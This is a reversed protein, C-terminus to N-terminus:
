ELFSKRFGGVYTTTLFLKVIALKSVRGLISRKKNKGHSKKGHEDRYQYCILWIKSELSECLFSTQFRGIHINFNTINFSDWTVVVCTPLNQIDEKRYM